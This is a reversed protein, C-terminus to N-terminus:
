TRRVSNGSACIAEILMAAEEHEEANGEDQSATDRHAAAADALIADAEADDIVGNDTLSLLISECISLAARGAAGSSM